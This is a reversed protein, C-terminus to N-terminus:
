LLLDKFSFNVISPRVFPRRVGFYYISPVLSTNHQQFLIIYQPFLVRIINNFCFLINLSCSEYYTTPVFFYISPVIRYTTPVFFFYINLSCSLINRSNFIHQPFLTDKKHFCFLLNHSCSIIYIYISPVFYVFLNRM